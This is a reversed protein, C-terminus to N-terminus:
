KRMAAAKALLRDAEATLTKIVAPDIEFKAQARAVLSKFTVPDPDAPNKAIAEDLCARAEVLILKADVPTIAKNNNVIDLLHVGFQHRATATAPIAARAAKM